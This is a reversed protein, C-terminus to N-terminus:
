REVRLFIEKGCRPCSIIGSKPAEFLESVPISLASAIKELLSLSASGNAARSLTVESVNIKKALEKQTTNRKQCAEKIRLRM